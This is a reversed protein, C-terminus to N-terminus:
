GIAFSGNLPLIRKNVKIIKVVKMSAPIVNVLYRAKESAVILKEGCTPCIQEHCYFRNDLLLLAMLHSYEKM